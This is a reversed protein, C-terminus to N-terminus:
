KLNSTTQIAGPIGNAKLEILLEEAQKSNSKPTKQIYHELSDFKNLTDEQIHIATTQAHINGVAFLAVFLILYVTKISNWFLSVPLQM